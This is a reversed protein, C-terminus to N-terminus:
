DLEFNINGRRHNDTNNKKDPQNLYSEFKTGFLTEPRLYKAMDTGFWEINKKIIVKKFDEITFGENLRAKIHKSTSQTKYRYSSGTESNLFDVIDKIDKTKSEEEKKEKGKSAIGLRDCQSFGEIENSMLLISEDTMEKSQEKTIYKYRILNGRIGAIRKREKAELYPELYLVLNTSFFKEEKDIQFLQYNTIVTRIKQESTGIEDALLDIDDIPYKYDSQERLVELLMFYIGYGEVGLEKRLRRIKRDHRANAFHPFYFADKDKRNEM